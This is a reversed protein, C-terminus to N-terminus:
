FLSIWVTLGHVQLRSLPHDVRNTACSCKCLSAISRPSRELYPRRHWKLCTSCSGCSGLFFTNGLCDHVQLSTWISVKDPCDLSRLISSLLLKENNQWYLLSLTDNLHLYCIYGVVRVFPVAGVAPNGAQVLFQAWRPRPTVAKMSNVKLSIWIQACVRWTIKSKRNCVHDLKLTCAHKSSISPCEHFELLDGWAHVCFWTYLSRTGWDEPSFAIM